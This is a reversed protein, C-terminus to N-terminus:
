EWELEAFAATVNRPHSQAFLAFDHDVEPRVARVAEEITGGRAIVARVQRRLGELYRREPGAAQPWDVRAPGHGPVAHAFSQLVLADLVELWGNLSGDLTPCRGVFLLDGSWLTGAAPDHVTLDSDTHATAHARLELTRGGLDIELRDEVLLTPPVVATGAALEELTEQLRDLYFPGRAALAGPLRRHGVFVPEDELFAAHGFLHDPHVHTAIVYRVPRETVRRIADRLLRGGAASGGTDVVAVAEEGVICGVNAIMGLNERTVLEHPGSHVFHGPAVEDLALGDAARLPSTALVGAGASALMGHLVARRTARQDRTM